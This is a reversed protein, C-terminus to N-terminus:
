YVCVREDMCAWVMDTKGRTNEWRHLGQSTSMGSRQRNKDSRIFIKVYEGRGDGDGSGTNEDTGGDGVRVGNCVKRKVRASVRRDCIVGPIRRWGSWGAQVRKKM